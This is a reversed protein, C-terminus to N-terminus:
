GEVHKPDFADQLADTFINFALVLGFMFVTATGIQWFFGRIVEQRAQSIMIGWSSGEKVGLGLFSLIVESKVAGIFLLSFNIFMLHATNPLVHRLLIKMRGFGVATAAQVYELEKLKMTEGRVVRCPGIWFTLCFAAYVPILTGDLPGGTFLYAVLVLLVLYPVSSLTSYLWIVLGDVWGGFFGAAAGLLSGFLVSILATVMGIQAAVKISYLARVLISRGQRDTGLSTRVAYRWGAYGDPVVFLEDLVGELAAVDAVITPRDALVDSTWIEDYLTWARAVLARLEDPPREAIHLEAMRTELLAAEVDQSALARDALELLFSADELRKEYSQAQGIGPQESPGVRELTEGLSIWPKELVGIGALAESVLIWGGILVYVAIVASAVVAGRNKKFKLFGRSQFFRKM